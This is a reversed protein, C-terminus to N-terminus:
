LNYQALNPVNKSASELASFFLLQPLLHTFHQSTDLWLCLLLGGAILTSEMM